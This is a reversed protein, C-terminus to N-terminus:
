REPSGAQAASGMNEIIAAAARAPDDSRVFRSDVVLYDAGASIAAPCRAAKHDYIAIRLWEDIKIADL